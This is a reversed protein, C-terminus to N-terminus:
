KLKLKIFGVFKLIYKVIVFKLVIYMLGLIILSCLTQGIIFLMNYNGAKSDQKYQTISNEPVLLKISNFFNDKKLIFKNKESSICWFFSTYLKNKIVIGRSFVTYPINNAILTSFEFEICKLKGIEIKKKSILTGKYKNLVGDILGNYTNNLDDITPTELSPDLKNISLIYQTNENTNLYYDTEFSNNSITPNAPFNISFIDSINQIYNSQANLLVTIFLLFSSMLFKLNM